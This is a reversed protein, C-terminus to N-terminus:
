PYYNFKRGEADENGAREPLLKYLCIILIIFFMIIGSKIQKFLARVQSRWTSPVRMIIHREDQFRSSKIFTTLEFRVTGTIRIKLLCIIEQSAEEAPDAPAVEKPLSLYYIGLLQTM